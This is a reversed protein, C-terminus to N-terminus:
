AGAALFDLRPSWGRALVAPSLGSPAEDSGAPNRSFGFGTGAGPGLHLDIHAPRPTVARRVPLAPFDASGDSGVAPMTNTKNGVPCSRAELRAPCRRRCGDRVVVQKVGGLPEEEGGGGGQNIQERQAAPVASLQRQPRWRSLRVWGMICSVVRELPRRTALRSICPM